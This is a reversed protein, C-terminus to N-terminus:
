AFINLTAKNISQDVEIVKANAQYSISAIQSQVLQQALDVNPSAVLGNSDAFPSNPDYVSQSPPTVPRYTAITGGGPAASQVTDVPQYPQPQGPQPTLPATDSANAINSAAADLRQSAANLGSVAINLIADSM